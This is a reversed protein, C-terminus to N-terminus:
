RKEIRIPYNSYGKLYMIYECMMKNFLISRSGIVQPKIHSNVGTTMHLIYKGYLPQITAKFGMNEYHINGNKGAKFCLIYMGNNAIINRPWSKM